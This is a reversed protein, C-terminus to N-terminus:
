ALTDDKWCSYPVQQLEQQKALCPHIGSKLLPTVRQWGGDADKSLDAIAEDLPQNSQQAHQIAFEVANSDKSFLFAQVPLNLVHGLCRLRYTLASWEIGISALHEEIDRCMKDM